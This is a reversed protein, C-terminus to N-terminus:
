KAILSNKINPGGLTKLISHYIGKSIIDALTMVTYLRTNQLVLFELSGGINVIGKISLNGVHPLDKNLAAGPILPGKEIIINGINNANGLSADVAIIYPNNLETNIINLYSELNKAHIPNELNGYISIKNRVVFKLKEGVIPGLSDGTSRDTGICLVAIKKNSNLACLMQESLIDRFKFICNKNSSDLVIKSLM